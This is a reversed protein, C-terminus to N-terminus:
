YRGAARIGNAFSPSYKLKKAKAWAAVFETLGRVSSANSNGFGHIQRIMHHNDIEVTFFPISEEGKRRIFLINTSGNAVAPIYSKVCHRLTIGEIAVDVPENPAIICYEANGDWELKSWREHHKKFGEEHQAQVRAEHAVADANVLDVMIQHHGVLEELTSFRPRLVDTYNGSRIMSITDNYLGDVDAYVTRGHTNVFQMSRSPANAVVNNLDRIFYMADKGYMQYTDVLAHYYSGALREGDRLSNLIYDFTENDIDNLQNVGFINKLRYVVSKVPYQQWGRVNALMTTTFESVAKTQHSNMGLMKFINKANWDVYGLREEVYNKWSRQYRGELYLDCLWGMGLKYIKEFEPYMTLMYLAESQNSMTTAINKFYELKTGDFVDDSQLVVSDATFATSKLKGTAYIWNGRLDSRCHIAENKSVYLRSTEIHTATNFKHWWRLVVWEDNVRDAYCLIRDPGGDPHKDVTHNPLSISAIENVKDQKAGSRMVMSSARMFIPVDKYEDFTVYKNAGVYGVGFFQKFSETLGCINKADTARYLADILSLSLFRNPERRYSESSLFGYKDINDWQLIKKDRDIVVMAALEPKSVVVNFLADKHKKVGRAADNIDHWSHYWWSGIKSTGPYNVYDCFVWTALVIRNNIVQATRFALHVLEEVGDLQFRRILNYNVFENYALARKKFVDGTNLHVICKKEKLEGKKDPLNVACRAYVDPINKYLAQRISEIIGKSEVM